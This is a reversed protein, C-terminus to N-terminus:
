KVRFYFFTLPSSSVGVFKGEPFLVRSGDPQIRDLDATESPDVVSEYPMRPYM